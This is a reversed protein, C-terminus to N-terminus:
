HTVKPKVKMKTGRAERSAPREQDEDHTYCLTISPCTEAENMEKRATKRATDSHSCGEIIDRCGVRKAELHVAISIILWLYSRNAKVISLGEVVVWYNDWHKLVGVKVVAVISECM